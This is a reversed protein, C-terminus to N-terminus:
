RVGGFLVGHEAWANADTPRDLWPGSVHGHCPCVWVWRAREVWAGDEIVTVVRSEVRMMGVEPPGPEDAAPALVARLAEVTADFDLPGIM